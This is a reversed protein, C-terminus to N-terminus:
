PGPPKPSLLATLVQPSPATIPPVDKTDPWACWAHVAPSIWIRTDSHTHRLAALEKRALLEGDPLALPPGGRATWPVDAWVWRGAPTETIGWRASLGHVMLLGRNREGDADCILAPRTDSGQDGIMLRIFDPAHRGLAKRGPARWWSVDMAFAGGPGGSATHQVANMALEHAIGELDDQADCPPLFDRPWRRAQRISEPLGTLSCEWRRAPVCAAPARATPAAHPTHWAPRRVTGVLEPM